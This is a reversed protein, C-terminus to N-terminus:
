VRGRARLPVLLADRVVRWNVDDLTRHGLDERVAAISRLDYETDLQRDGDRHDVVLGTAYRRVAETSTIAASRAAEHWRADHPLWSALVETPSPPVTESRM